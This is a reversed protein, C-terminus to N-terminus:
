RPLILGSPRTETPGSQAQQETAREILELLVDSARRTGIRETSLLRGLGAGLLLRILPHREPPITPDDLARAAAVALRAVALRDTAVFIFGTEELRRRLARRVLPTLAQQGADAILQLAQQEPEHGPVLLGATPGRALDLARAKLEAPVTVHWGAVEPEGLLRPSSELWDPNFSAEVPRITEYVLAHEPPGAAEGFVDRLARYRTPVGGGVERTLDVAERVLQLAYDGPVTVWTGSASRNQELEKLFRKRTTDVLNMDQLGRQDNLLLAAFWVGGLRREGLLWVARSGSPDIDTVWAQSVPITTEAPQNPTTRSPQPEQARVGVSRLRHLERRASKRLTRDEVILDVLALVEAAAVERREGLQKLAVELAAPDAERLLSERQALEGELLAAVLDLTEPVSTRLTVRHSM